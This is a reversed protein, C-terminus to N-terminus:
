RRSSRRPRPRVDRVFDAMADLQRLREAPTRRLNSELLTLDLGYAEARRRPDLRSTTPRGRRRPAYTTRLRSLGTNVAALIRFVDVAASVVGGDNTVRVPRRSGDYRKLVDVAIEHARAVPMDINQAL